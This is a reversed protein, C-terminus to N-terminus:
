LDLRVSFHLQVSVCTRKSQLHPSQPWPSFSADPYFPLSDPQFDLFLGPLPFPAVCRAAPSFPGEPGPLPPVETTPVFSFPNVPHPSLPPVPVLLSVAGSAAPAIRLTRRVSQLERAPSAEGALLVCFSLLRLFGQSGPDAVSGGGATAM